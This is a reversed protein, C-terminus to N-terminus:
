PGERAQAPKEPHLQHLWLRAHGCTPCNLLHSVLFMFPSYTKPYTAAYTSDLARKLPACDVLRENIFLILVAKKGKHDAGSM